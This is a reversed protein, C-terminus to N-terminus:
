EAMPEHEPGHEEGLRPIQRVGARQLLKAVEAEPAHRRRTRVPIHHARGATVVGRPLVKGSTGLYLSLPRGNPEARLVLRPRPLSRAPDRGYTGPSGIEVISQRALALSEDARPSSSNM